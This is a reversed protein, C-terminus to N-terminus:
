ESLRTLVVLLLCICAIVLLAEHVLRTKNHDTM